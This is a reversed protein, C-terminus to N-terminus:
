REPTAPPLTAPPLPGGEKPAERPALVIPAACTNVNGRSDTHYLLEGQKSRAVLRYGPVLAQTYMRGPEPCGLSGDPWTVREARVLVITNEAVQFRRASDAVVARRVRIPVSAMAVPEGAPLASVAAPPPIRQPPAMGSAARTPRQPPTEEAFSTAALMVALSTILMTKRRM